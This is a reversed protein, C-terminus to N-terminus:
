QVVQGDLFHLPVVDGREIVIVGALPPPQVDALDERDGRRPVLLLQLARRLDVAEAFPPERAARRSRSYAVIQPGGPDRGPTHPGAEHPPVDAADFGQAVGPHVEPFPM